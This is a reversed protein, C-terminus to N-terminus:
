VPLEQADLQHTMKVLHSNTPAPASIPHPPFISEVQVQHETVELARQQNQQHPLARMQPLAMTM